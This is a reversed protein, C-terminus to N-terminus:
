VYNKLLKNELDKEINKDCKKLIDTKINELIV